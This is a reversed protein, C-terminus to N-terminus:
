KLTKVLGAIQDRSVYDAGKKLDQGLSSDAPVFHKVLGMITKEIGSVCAPNYAGRFFWCPLGELEKLFNLERCEAQVAEEHVNLGVAFTLLEKGELRGMHKKLFELGQIGGARIWGGFVITDYDDLDSVKCTDVDFLGADLEEAIWQAYQKTSGRKSKYVVAIKTM